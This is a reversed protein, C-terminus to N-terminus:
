YGMCKNKKDPEIISNLSSELHSWVFKSQMCPIAPNSILDTNTVKVNVNKNFYM